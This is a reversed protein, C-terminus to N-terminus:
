GAFRGAAVLASLLGLIAAPAAHAPPEKARVHTAVAGIMLVVLAGAAVPTLIPVIGTAWPVVLGIGGLLEALGLAKILPAPTTRTWAMKPELQAKPTLAKMAGAAVFALGLLGQIIWLPVNLSSM